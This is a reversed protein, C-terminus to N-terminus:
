SIYIKEWKSIELMIEEAFRKRNKRIRLILAPPLHVTDLNGEAWLIIEIMANILNKGRETLYYLKRTRSEPHNISDIMGAVTLRKLRDSLINTSIGEEAALMDKFEHRNRFMLDRIVLLTWRDGIIDLAHAIPCPSSDSHCPKKDM